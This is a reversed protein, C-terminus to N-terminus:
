CGICRGFNKGAVTLDPLFVIDNEDLDAAPNWARWEEPTGGTAPTTAFARLILGVDRINVCGDYDVDGIRHFMEAIRMNVYERSLYYNTNTKLSVSTGLKYADFVWPGAGDQKLDAVGNNDADDVMPDYTRVAMFDFGSDTWTKGTDDEINGWIDEKIIPLKGIWELAWISFRNMRVRIKDDIIDVSNVNEVLPYNWAVGPGCAKTFEQFSEKTANISCLENFKYHFYENLCKTFKAETKAIFQGLM